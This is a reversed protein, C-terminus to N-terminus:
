RPTDRRQETQDAAARRESPVSTPCLKVLVVEADREERQGGARDEVYDDFQERDARRNLRFVIVVHPM